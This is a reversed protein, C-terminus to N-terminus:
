DDQEPPQWGIRELQRQQMQQLHQNLDFERANDTGTRALPIVEASQEPAPAKGKAPNSFVPAIVNPAPLDAPVPVPLQAAVQAATMRREADLAAKTARRFQGKARAHERAAATDAFGVAGICDAYGIYAGDLAYCEAGTHLSQPDFRLVVKRGAHACLAESWYRNGALRVSGDEASANVAEATLLLTRLQEATARRIATQGYSAAFAADFSRGACVKTRRGSRANHAIVEEAVIRQVDDWDVARSGYNEPKATPNNGTYAGAFAPHKAIRDCFDKWAREIPKAQGHYPTVWHVEIGLAVILGVPEDEKVKFRYRNPTGGTMWKSAFARGNDLWAHKPIGFDRVVDILSLRVADTSENDCLRHALIKGSLLDQWAVIAPRGIDGNPFRTMFDFRHGDSNVGELAAFVGRDREQAPFLRLMAEEGQRALTQVQRPIERDLRREITRLSPLQWGREAGIRQLREYCSASTPQELRLFDAKFIDWADEACDATAVRGTYSPLLLALWDSRDAGRVLTAWRGLSEPSAAGDGEHSLQRSVYTRAVLLPMGTSTLAEVAHLARLRRQAIQKQKDAVRDYRQWKSVIQDQSPALTSRAFREVAPRERLHLAAQTEPPLCSLPYERGGGRGKRQRSRWQEKKALRVVGSHSVPMGNVGTLDIASYWRESASGDAM